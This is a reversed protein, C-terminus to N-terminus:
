ILIWGVDAFHAGMMSNARAPGSNLLFIERCESSFSTLASNLTNKLSFWSSVVTKEMVKLENSIRVSAGSAALLADMWDGDKPEVFFIALRGFSGPRLRGVTVGAKVLSKSINRLYRTCIFSPNSKFWNERERFCCTQVQCFQHNSTLNM